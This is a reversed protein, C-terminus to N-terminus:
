WMVLSTFVLILILIRDILLITYFDLFFDKLHWIYVNPYCTPKWFLDTYMISNCYLRRDDLLKLTGAAM